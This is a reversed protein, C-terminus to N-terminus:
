LLAYAIVLSYFDFGNTKDMSMITCPARVDLMNYIVYLKVGSQGRISHYMKSADFRMLFWCSTFLVMGRLLDAKHDPLMGSVNRGKNKSNRHQQQGEAMAKTTTQSGSRTKRLKNGDNFYSRICAMWFAVLVGIARLFRLPLITFIYLWSDLCALVGFITAIELKPPLLFFNMIREMAIASTDDPDNPPKGYVSGASHSVPEKEQSSSGHGTTKEPPRTITPSSLALSLYRHFKVHSFQTNPPTTSGPIPTGKNDSSASDHATDGIHNQIVTPLTRRRFSTEVEVDEKNADDKQGSAQSPNGALLAVPEFLQPQFGKSSKRPPLASGLGNLGDDAFVQATPNTTSLKRTTPRFEGPYKPLVQLNDQLSSNTPTTHNSHIPHEKLQSSHIDSLKDNGHCHENATTSTGIYKVKDGVGDNDCGDPPPTPFVHGIEHGFSGCNNNSNSNSISGHRSRNRSFNDGSVAMLHEDDNNARLQSQVCLRELYAARSPCSLTPPPKRQRRQLLRKQIRYPRESGQLVEM